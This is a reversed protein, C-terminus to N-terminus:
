LEDAADSTYLLCRYTVPQIGILVDFATQMVDIIYLFLEFLAYVGKLWWDLIFSGVYDMVTKVIPVLIPEVITEIIFKFISSLISTLWNRIPSLIANLVKNFIDSFLGMISIPM